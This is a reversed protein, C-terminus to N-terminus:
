YGPNQNLNPNAVIESAPIPYIDRFDSVPLGEPSGGKWPWVYSGASFQSFRILDTRRQAEWHFERAREDLLFTLNLDGTTIEGANVRNRVQNVFGVAEELNGGTRLLAEAHMLYVDALRFLPFDTDVHTADSGPTGDSRLNSFKTVAYGETFLAMDNIDKNQGQTYFDGRQDGPPLSIAYTYDREDLYLSIDYVGAVEIEIDTGEQSLHGDADTDGLNIDWLDNARFKIKGPVLSISINWSDSDPDYSMDQDSDWGGPTADGVVGWETKEFSYQGFGTNVKIIYYGAEPVAIAEGDLDLVGNMDTDGWIKDETPSDSIKFSGNDEPFYIYGEYVGNNNVSSISHTTDASNFGQHSSPVFLRTYSTNVEAREVVPGSFGGGPFKDVLASTTRTGGWGGAVGYDSAIMEGGISANVIFTTGGWTKTHVGDYTIPFIIGDATDNDALFLHKYTEDLQYGAGILKNTYELTEQYYATGTYVEGNLLLKAMLMWAAGKDARGYQHQKADVLDAEIDTLETRIFDFLDAGSIQNPLFSGVGDEELVFPVNRFLDLAHFYSLARLFRAEARFTQISTRLAADVNREDLKSDVTERLFENALAIQYFVRSYFAAIFVDNSSWDQEHFDKITQDNWGVVAEDTPFEQHYWLGRLYQGFGEDIGSIDAQGAPGQQGTVSLGAYLKALVQLYADPNDYVTAATLEDEDLPITDLDKFCSSMVLLIAISFTIKTFSYINKM